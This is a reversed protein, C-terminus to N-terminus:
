WARRIAEARERMAASRGHIVLGLAFAASAVLAVTPLAILLPAVPILLYAAGGAGLLLGAIPGLVAYAGTAAAMVALAVRALPELLRGRLVVVALVVLAAARVLDLATTLTILGTSRLEDLSAAEAFPRMAAQAAAIGVVVAAHVLVAVGAVRSPRLLGPEGRVGRALGVAAVMTLVLGLVDVVPGRLVITSEMDPTPQIRFGGLLGPQLLLAGASALGAALTTRPSGSMATARM